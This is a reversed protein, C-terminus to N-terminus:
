LAGRRLSPQLESQSAILEKITEMDATKYEIGTSVLLPLDEHRGAWGIFEDWQPQETTARSMVGILAMAAAGRYANVAEAAERNTHLNDRVAFRLAAQVRTSLHTTVEVGCEEIVTGAVWAPLVKDRAYKGTTRQRDWKNVQGSAALAAADSILNNVERRALERALISGNRISSAMFALAEGDEKRLNNIAENVAEMTARYSVSTSSPSFSTSSYIVQEALNILERNTPVPGVDFLKM